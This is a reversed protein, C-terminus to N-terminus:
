CGSSYCLLGFSLDVLGMIHKTPKAHRGLLGCVICNWNMNAEIDESKALMANAPVGLVSAGLLLSVQQLKRSAIRVVAVDKESFLM